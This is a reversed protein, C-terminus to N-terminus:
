CTTEAAPRNRDPRADDRIRRLSIVCCQVGTRRKGSARRRQCGPPAHTTGTARAPQGARGGATDGGTVTQGDDTPRDTTPDRYAVM